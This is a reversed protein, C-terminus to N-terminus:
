MDHCELAAQVFTYNHRDYAACEVRLIHQMSEGAAEVLLARRHQKKSIGPPTMFLRDRREALFAKVGAKFKSFVEEIPNFFPSYPPLRKVSHETTALLVEEARRHAPANDFLFVAETGPEQHHVKKSLDDLFENFVAWHIKDVLTWHLLGNASMCALVNMNAGKTSTALRIAPAGRKARGFSRACWVNFNTEDIYYRTVTTGENQLWQAFKRREEKVDPRNRDVPRQTILKLTYGHGDLLRDITSKSIEIGPFKETLSMRIQMLTFSPNKELIERLTNVVDRDFKKSSGGRKKATERDTATISRVTKINIGLTQALQKLNGGRRYADIIRSRDVASVRAYKTKEEDPMKRPRGAARVNGAEM